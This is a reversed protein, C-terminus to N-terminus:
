IREKLWNIADGIADERNSENYIEHLFDHYMKISQDSKEKGFSKYWEMTVNSSVICDKGAVQMFFPQLVKIEKIKALKKQIQSFARVSLKKLILPDNDYAQAYRMDSSLQSGSIESNLLISPAIVGLFRGLFRKWWAVPLSLAFLPSSLVAGDIHHKTHTLFSLAVLAGMSHAMLFFKSRPGQMPKAYSILTEVDQEYNYFRLIDGRSGKSRGHGRLDLCFVQINEALLKDVVHSYRGSHEGFGHIIVVTARAESLAYHRYFIETNDYSPLYGTKSYVEGRKLNNQQQVSHDM